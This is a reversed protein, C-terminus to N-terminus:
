EGPKENLGNLVLQQRTVAVKGVLGVAVTSLRAARGSGSVGKQRPGPVFRKSDRTMIALLREAERGQAVQLYADWAKLLAELEPNM